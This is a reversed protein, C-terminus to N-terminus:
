NTRKGSHTRKRGQRSATNRLQRVGAYTTTKRTPRTQKNLGTPIIPNGTTRDKGVSRTGSCKLSAFDIPDSRSYHQYIEHAALFRQKELGGRPLVCPFGSEELHPILRRFTKSKVLPSSFFDIALDLIDDDMEHIRGTQHCVATTVDADTVNVSPDAMKTFLDKYKNMSKDIPIVGEAIQLSM